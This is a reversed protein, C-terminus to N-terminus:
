YVSEIKAGVTANKLIEIKLIELNLSILDKFNEKLVKSTAELSEEVSKFKRENYFKEIFEIVSVYDIFGSSCFSANMRVKQPTTREFDLMGIITEFEHDKILTTIKQSM